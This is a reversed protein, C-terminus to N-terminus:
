ILQQIRNNAKVIFRAAGYTIIFIIAYICMWMDFGSKLLDALSIACAVLTGVLVCCLNVWKYAAVTAYWITIAPYGLVTSSCNVRGGCFVGCM